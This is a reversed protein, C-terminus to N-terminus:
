WGRMPEVYLDATPDTRYAPGSPLEQVLLEIATWTDGVDLGATVTRLHDGQRLYLGREPSPLTVLGGAGVSPQSGEYMGYTAVGAAVIAAPAQTRFWTFSGDGLTFTPIRNAVVISATLAATFAWIIWSGQGTPTIDIEAGAVPVPIQPSYWRPAEYEINRPMTM